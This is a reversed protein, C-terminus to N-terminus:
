VLLITPLTLHTYSVSEIDHIDNNASMLPKKVAANAGVPAFFIASFLIYFRLKM